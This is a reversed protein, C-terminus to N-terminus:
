AAALSPICAKAATEFLDLVPRSQIKRWALARAPAHAASLNSIIVADFPLSAAQEDSLIPLGRFRLGRSGLRADAIGLVELGCRRAALRFALINKGLDAFLVRKLGLRATAEALRAATQEVRAFREFAALRIPRHECTLGRFIGEIAGAWFATGLGAATSLMRYRELWELAYHLRYPEPFYRMALLTNNRADLRAIRGPFRSGPTKLHRVHLDNFPEVRWGAELLRISLDYEEAAMFFDDPLGGVDCAAQRRLGTGCGICVNPYASCERSGDPLTVMFVAAGLLPDRDFHSIMRRVSGPEPFSDDDLFVVFEGMAIALGANKACPGRNSTLGLLRVAPFRERVACATGDSSANDVVLIEFESQPLGCRYVQELTRLLVDRRNYTPLIFSVRPRAISFSRRM